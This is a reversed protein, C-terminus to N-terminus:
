DAYDCSSQPLARDQSLHRSPLNHKKYQETGSVFGSYILRVIDNPHRLLNVSHHTYPDWVELNLNKM